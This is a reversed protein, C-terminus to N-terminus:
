SLFEVCAACLPRKAMRGLMSLCGREAARWRIFHNPKGCSRPATGARDPMPLQARPVRSLARRWFHAVSIGHDSQRLDDM